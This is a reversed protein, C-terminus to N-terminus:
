SVAVYVLGAGSRAAAQAALVAAGTMGPSGAALLLSGFTGKHGNRPRPPLISMADERTVLHCRSDQDRNLLDEPFGISDVIVEGCADAAPYQIMGIKPLGMTVTEEAQVALGLPEGTDADLGSPVDVALVRCGCTKVADIVEGILGHVKGSLGTGLIADVVLGARHCAVAVPEAETVETASVGVEHLRLLNAEADGGVANRAGVLLVQVKRGMETLHRAAVFGDGGNNGTGCIIVIPRDASHEAIRAAAEAVARGANEMLTLGPIGREQIARRDLDRMQEATVIKM